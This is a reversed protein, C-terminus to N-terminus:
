GITGNKENSSFKECIKMIKKLKEKADFDSESERESSSSEDYDSAVRDAM